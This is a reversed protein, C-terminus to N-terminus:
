AHRCTIEISIKGNANINKNCFPCSLHRARKKIMWRKVWKDKTLLLLCSEYVKWLPKISLISFHDTHAILLSQLSVQISLGRVCAM